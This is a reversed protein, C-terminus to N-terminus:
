GVQVRGVALRRAPGVGLGPGQGEGDFEALAPRAAPEGKGVVLGQDLRLVLQVPRKGEVEGTRRGVWRVRHGVQAVGSAGNM